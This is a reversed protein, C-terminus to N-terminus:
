YDAWFDVVVVKGRHRAVEEALGAWKVVKVDIPADQGQGGQALWLLGLAPLLLRGSWRLTRM